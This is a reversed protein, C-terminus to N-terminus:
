MRQWPMFAPGSFFPLLESESLGLGEFAKALAFEQGTFLLPLNVGQLSMFDLELMWREWDWWPMTYGHTCVNWAYRWTASVTHRESNPVTPRPPPVTITDLNSTGWAIQRLAVYKIYYHVGLALASPSNAVVSINHPSSSSNTVHFFEPAGAVAGHGRREELTLELFPSLLPARRTVLAAVAAVRQTSSADDTKLRTTAESRLEWRVDCVAARITVAGQKVELPTKQGNVMLTKLTTIDAASLQVRVTCAGDRVLPTYWGSYGLPGATKAVGLIPTSVNYSRFTGTQNPRLGSPRLTVGHVDFEAGVLALVGFLPTTHAWSNQGFTLLCEINACAVCM